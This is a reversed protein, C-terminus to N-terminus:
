GSGYCSCSMVQGAGRQTWPTDGLVKWIHHFDRGAFPKGPDPACRGCRLPFGRPQPGTAGARYNLWCLSDGNSIVSPGLLNPGECKIRQNNANKLSRLPFAAPSQSTTPRLSECNHASRCCYRCLFLRDHLSLNTKMYRRKLSQWASH